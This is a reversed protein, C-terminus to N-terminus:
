KVNEYRLHERAGDVKVSHGHWTYSNWTCFERNRAVHWPLPQARMRTYAFRKQDFNELKTSVRRMAAAVSDFVAGLNDGANIIQQEFRRRM